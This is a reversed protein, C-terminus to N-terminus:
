CGAALALSGRVKDQDDGTPRVRHHQEAANALALFHSFARAMVLAEKASMSEVVSVLQEFASRDGSVRWRKSLGRITEITDLVPKGERASVWDGFMRGLARVDATLPALSESRDSPTVPVGADDTFAQRTHPTSSFPALVASRHAGPVGVGGVGRLCVQASQRLLFSARCRPSTALMGLSM